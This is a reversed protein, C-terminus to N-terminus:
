RCRLRVPVPEVAEQEKGVILLLLGIIAIILSFLGAIPQV